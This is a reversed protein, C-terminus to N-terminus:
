SEGHGAQDPAACDARQAPSALCSASGEGAELTPSPGGDAPDIPFLLPVGRGKTRGAVPEAASSAATGLLPWRVSFKIGTNM